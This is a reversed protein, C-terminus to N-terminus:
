TTDWCVQLMVTVYVLISITPSDNTPCHSCFGVWSNRKTDNSQYWFSRISSDGINDYFIYEPSEKIEIWQCYTNRQILILWMVIVKFPFDYQQRFYINNTVVKLVGLFTKYCVLFGRLEWHTCKVWHTSSRKLCSSAFKLLKSPITYYKIYNKQKKWWYVIM